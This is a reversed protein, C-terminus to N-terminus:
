LNMIREQITMEDKPAFKVKKNNRERVADIVWRRLTANHTKSKSKDGKEVMYLSLYEIAEDTEPFENLLRQYEEDTLKVNNQTGFVLVDTYINKDNKVKKDNKVNKNTNLQQESTTRKNNVQQETQQESSQYEQWNLITILRNRPTTQQEIQQAIEFTKLVRQVKSDSTTVFQSIVKRGTILQGPKLEIVKGEFMTEYGKHTAQLLLYIWIAIHESDKCVVPNELTKRYLKIFGNDAM